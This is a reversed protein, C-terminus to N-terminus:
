KYKRWNRLWHIAESIGNILMIVGITGSCTIVVFVAIFYKPDDYAVSLMFLYGSTLFFTISASIMLMPVFM